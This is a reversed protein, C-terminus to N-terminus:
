ILDRLARVDTEIGFHALHSALDELQENEYDQRTNDDMDSEIGWLGGSSLTELRRNGQGIDYSVEAKAVCGLMEWSQGYSEKREKSQAEFGEGMEADTQDLWSLDADNDPIWEITVKNIQTREGALKNEQTNM